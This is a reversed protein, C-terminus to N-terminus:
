KKGGARFTSGDDLRTVETVKGQQATLMVFAAGWEMTTADIFEPLAEIAMYLRVVQEYRIIAGKIVEEDETM